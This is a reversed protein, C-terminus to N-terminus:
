RSTLHTRVILLVVLLALPGICLVNKNNNNDESDSESPTLTLSPAAVGADPEPAHPLSVFVPETDDITIKLTCYGFDDCYTLGEKDWTWARLTLVYVIRNGLIMSSLAYKASNKNFQLLLEETGLGERIPRDTVMEFKPTFGPNCAAYEVPVTIINTVNGELIQSNSTTWTQVESMVVEPRFVIETEASVVLEDTTTNIRRIAAEVKVDHTACPISSLDFTHSLDPNTIWLLPSELPTEGNSYLRFMVQYCSSDQLDPRTSTDIHANVTLSQQNNRVVPGPIDDLVLFPTGQITRNM